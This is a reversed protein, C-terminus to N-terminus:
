VYGDDYSDFDDVDDFDSMIDDVEGIKELGDAGPADDLMWRQPHSITAVTDAALIPLGENNLFRSIEIESSAFKRALHVVLRDRQEDTLADVDLMYVSQEGEMGDLTVMHPFPLLVQVTNTGFVETFEEGREGMVTVKFDKGM